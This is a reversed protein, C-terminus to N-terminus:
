GRGGQWPFDIEGLRRVEPELEVGTMEMVLRRGEAMVAVVDATTASGMNEIFNAHKLAFRAGGVTLGKCGARSLLEGATQGEARPDGEPNKFTSGFTKIGRPQAEHRRAQMARMRASVEERAAPTLALSAQAVVEGMVLNSSRYKLALEGPERRECGAATVVDVWQLVRALDGDYANANMTVAGGITGPISVGFEIGSLGSRSAEAAVRPLLAGGGCVLRNGQVEIRALERELKLVLGRVGEDAILLNSGRGVVAVPVGVGAAWALLEQLRAMDGVRAFLEATGGTRVTSLRALPEERRVGAPPPSNM